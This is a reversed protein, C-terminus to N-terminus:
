IQGKQSPKSNKLKFDSNSEKILSARKQLNLYLFKIYLTFDRYNSLLFEFTVVGDPGIICSTVPVNPVSVLM